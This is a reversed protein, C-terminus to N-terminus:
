NFRFSVLFEILHKAKQALINVVPNYLGTRKLLQPM